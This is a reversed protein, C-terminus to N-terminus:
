APELQKREDVVEIGAQRFEQIMADDVECTFVVKQRGQKTFGCVHSSLLKAWVEDRNEETDFHATFYLKSGYMADKGVGQFGPNIELSKGLGVIKLRIM